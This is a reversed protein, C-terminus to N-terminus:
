DDDAKLKIRITVPIHDSAKRRFEELPSILLEQHVHATSRVLDQHVGGAGSSAMVYDIKSGASLPVGKLRTGPYDEGSMPALVDIDLSGGFDILYNELKTDYLNANFDGAIVVDREASPFPDGDFVAPLRDALERMGENHNINADQGAALHVGVVVLDNRADGSPALFTFHCALPDRAAIDKGQVQRLPIEFEHCANRRAKTTDHLLAIRQTGGSRSLEYQWQPGLAAILSDLEDSRNM